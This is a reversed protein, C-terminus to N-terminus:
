VQLKVMTFYHHFARNFGAGYCRGDSGKKQLKDEYVISVGLTM